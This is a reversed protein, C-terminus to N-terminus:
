TSQLEWHRQCHLWKYFAQSFNCKTLPLLDSSVIAAHMYLISASSLNYSSFSISPCYSKVLYIGSSPQGSQVPSNWACDSLFKSHTTTNSKSWDELTRGSPSWNPGCCTIHFDYISKAITTANWVNKTTAPFNTCTSAGLVIWFIKWDSYQTFFFLSLM